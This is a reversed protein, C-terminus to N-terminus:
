NNVRTVNNKNDVRLLDVTGSGGNKQLETDVVRVEYDTSNEIQYGNYVLTSGDQGISQYYEKAIRAADTQNTRDFANNSSSNETSNKVTSDQGTTAVSSSPKTQNNKSDNGPDTSPANVGKSSNASTSTNHTKQDSNLGKSSTNQNNRLLSAGVIISIILLVICVGITFKVSKKM